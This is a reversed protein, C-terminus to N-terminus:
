QTVERQKKIYWGPLIEKWNVIGGQCCLQVRAPLSRFFEQFENEPMDELIKLVNDNM